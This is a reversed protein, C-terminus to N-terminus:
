RCPLIIQPFINPAPVCQFKRQSSGTSLICIKPHLLSGLAGLPRWSCLRWCETTSEAAPTGTRGEWPPSGSLGQSRSQSPLQTHHGQSECPSRVRLEEVKEKPFPQPPDSKSHLSSLKRAKVCGAGPGPCVM